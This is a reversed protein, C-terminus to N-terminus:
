GRLQGRLQLSRGHRHRQDAARESGRRRKPDPHYERDHEGVLRQGSRGVLAFAQEGRRERLHEVEQLSAIAIPDALEARCDKKDERNARARYRRRRLRAPREPQAV